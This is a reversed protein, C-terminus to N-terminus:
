LRGILLSSVAILASAVIIARKAATNRPLALWLAVFCLAVDLVLSRQMELSPARGHLTGWRFGIIGAFFVVAVGSVVQLIRRARPSIAEDTMNGGTTHVSVM